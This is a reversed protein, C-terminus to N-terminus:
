HATSSGQAAMFVLTVMAPRYTDTVITATVTVTGFTLVYVLCEPNLIANFLCIRYLMIMNNEGDRFDQICNAQKVAFPKIIM